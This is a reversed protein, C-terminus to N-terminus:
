QPAAHREYEALYAATIAPDRLIVINEANREEAAASFNYSGTIVTESWVRFRPSGM